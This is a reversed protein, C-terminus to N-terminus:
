KTPLKEWLEYKEKPISAYKYFSGNEDPVAPIITIDGSPCSKEVNKLNVTLKNTREMTVGKSVPGHYIPIRGKDDIRWRLIVKEGTPKKIFQNDKKECTCENYVRLSQFKEACEACILLKKNKYPRWLKVNERGCISCAYPNKM